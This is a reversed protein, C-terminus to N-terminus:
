RALRGRLEGPVLGNRRARRRRRPAFSLARVQRRADLRLGSQRLGVAARATGPRSLLDAAQARRRAPHDRYYEMGGSPAHIILVSRRRAEAVFADMRPAMEAGRRVAGECWHRRWMDCIIIATQKAEWQVTKYVIQYSGSDKPSEVRSRTQLTLTNPREAATTPLCMAAVVWTLVIELLGARRM